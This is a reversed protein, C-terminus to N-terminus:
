IRTSSRVDESEESIIVIADEYHTEGLFFSQKISYEQALTVGMPDRRRSKIELSLSISLYRQISHIIKELPKLVIDQKFETHAGQEGTSDILSLWRYVGVDDKEIIPEDQKCMNELCESVSISDVYCPAYHELFQPIDYCQM